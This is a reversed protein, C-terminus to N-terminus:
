DAFHKSLRVGTNWYMDGDKLDMQPKNPMLGEFSQGHLSIGGNM